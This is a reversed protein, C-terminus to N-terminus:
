TPPKRHSFNRQQNHDHEHRHNCLIDEIRHMLNELQMKTWKSKVMDPQALEILMDLLKEQVNEDYKVVTFNHKLFYLFYIFSIGLLLACYQSGFSWSFSLESIFQMEM